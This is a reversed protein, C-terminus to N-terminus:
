SNLYSCLHLPNFDPISLGEFDPLDNATTAPIFFGSHGRLVSLFDFALFSWFFGWDAVRYTKHTCHIDYYIHCALKSIVFEIYYSSQSVTNLFLNQHIKCMYCKM